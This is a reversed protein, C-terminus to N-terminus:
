LFGYKEPSIFRFLINRMQNAITKSIIKYILNCLLIPRYNKFAMSPHRKPILTVYTSNIILHIKGMIRSEVMNLLDRKFIDFFHTFIELSWGDPSLSKDRKFAKLVELLEEKTVEKYINENDNDDFMTPYLDVAWLMTGM